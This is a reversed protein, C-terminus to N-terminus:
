IEYKGICCEPNAGIFYIENTLGDSAIRVIPFGVNVIKLLNMDYDYIFLTHPLRSLDRGHKKPPLPPAYAEDREVSVIYDKTLALATPAYVPTKLIKLEGNSIVYEVNSLTKKWKRIFNDGTYKYLSLYSMQGISHILSKNHPNYLVTGQFCSQKNTVEEALELPFYGFYYSSEDTHNVLLFPMDNLTHLIYKNDEIYVLENVNETPQVHGRKIPATNGSLLNDLSFLLTKNMQLDFILIGDNGAKSVFPTFVEDPGGGLNGFAIKEEGSKKDVVHVFNEQSFPNVWVLENEYVLFDGPFSTVLEDSIISPSISMREVEIKETCSLLAQVILVLISLNRM